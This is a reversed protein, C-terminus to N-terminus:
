ARLRLAIAAAADRVSGTQKVKEGARMREFQAKQSESRPSKASGPKMTLTPKVAKIAAEGKKARAEYEALKAKTEALEISLLVPRFDDFTELEEKSYGYDSLSRLATDAEERTIEPRKEKAVGLTYQAKVFRSQEVHEAWERQAKAETERLSALKEKIRDRALVYQGPNESQLRILDPAELYESYVKEQQRLVDVASKLRGGYDLAVKKHAEFLERKEEALKQKNQTYDGQRSYGGLADELTTEEVKGNIKVKVKLQKAVTAEDVGFAEALQALTQIEAHSGEEGGTEQAEEGPEGEAEQSEAESEESAEAEAAEGESKDEEDGGFRAAIAQAAERVGFGAEAPTSTTTEEMSM